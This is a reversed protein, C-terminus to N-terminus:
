KDIKVESTIFKFPVLINRIRSYKLFERSQLSKCGNNKANSVTKSFM